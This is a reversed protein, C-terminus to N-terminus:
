TKLFKIEDESLELEESVEPNQLFKRYIHFNQSVQKTSLHTAAAIQKSISLKKANRMKAIFMKLIRSPKTYNIFGLNKEKKSISIGSTLFTNQYVMFRYYQQRFIRGKFVDAKSLYEMANKLDEGQYEKPLNEEIWLFLEDLNEKLNDTSKLSIMPDLTKFIIKLSNTIEQTSDRESLLELNINQDEIVTQLDTLAARLDGNASRSITKLDQENFRIKEKESVNKLVEFIVNYDLAKYEILDLKKRLTNFKRDWIDNSVLVLPHKVLPLLKNLEQLGGRDKQGSIGDLEDILIIKGKNFLSQQQAAGGIISSIQAKNRFNSANLELVEFDMDKALAYVSSTKGTGTPGHLITPINNKVNYQLKALSSEQGYIENLNKPSYKTVFM